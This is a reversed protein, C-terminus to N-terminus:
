LMQRRTKSRSKPRRSRDVISRKEDSPRSSILAAGPTPAESTKTAVATRNKSPCGGMHENNPRGCTCVSKRTAIRFISLLLSPSAELEDPLVLSPDPRLDSRDDLRLGREVLEAEFM